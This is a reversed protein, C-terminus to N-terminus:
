TTYRIIKAPNGAVVCNNPISKTVVSNAGIVSNKGISVGSLIVVGIGIWSHKGIVVPKPIDYGSNQLSIGPVIKHSIDEIYVRDSITVGEEITISQGLSCVFDRGIYVNEHISLRPNMTGSKCVSIWSRSNIFVNNALKICRPCNTSFPARIRSTPHAEIGLYFYLFKYFSNIIQKRM